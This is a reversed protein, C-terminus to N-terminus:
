KQAATIKQMVEEISERVSIGLVQSTIHIWACDGGKRICTIADLAFFIPDGDMDHLELLIM